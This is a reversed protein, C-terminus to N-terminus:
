EAIEWKEHFLHPSLVFGKKDEEDVFCEDVCDYFIYEGKTWSECRVKAGIELLEIAWAFSGKEVQIADSM